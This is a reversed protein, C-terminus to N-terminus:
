NRLQYGFIIWGTQGHPKIYFMEKKSRGIVHLHDHGHLRNRM